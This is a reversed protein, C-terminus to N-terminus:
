GSFLNIGTALMPDIVFVRSGEPFKDPLRYIIDCYRYSLQVLVVHVSSLSFLCPFSCLIFNKLGQWDLERLSVM